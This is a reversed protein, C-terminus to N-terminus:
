KRPGTSELKSLSKRSLVQRVGGAQVLTISGVSEAALLGVVAFSILRDLGQVVILDPRQTDCRMGLGNFKDHRHCRAWERNLCVKM